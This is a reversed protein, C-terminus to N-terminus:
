VGATGAADVPGARDPDGHRAREKGPGGMRKTSLLKEPVRPKQLEAYVPCSDRYPCRSISLLAKEFREVNEKFKANETKLQEIIRQQVKAAEANAKKVLEIMEDANGISGRENEIEKARVEARKGKRAYLVSVSIGMLTTLATIVQMIDM